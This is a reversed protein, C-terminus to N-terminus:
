EARLPRVSSPPPSPPLSIFCAFKKVYNPADRRRSTSAPSPRGGAGGRGVKGDCSALQNLNYRPIISNPVRYREGSNGLKREEKEM